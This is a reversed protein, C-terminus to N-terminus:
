STTAALKMLHLRLFNLAQKAARTQLLDPHGTYPLELTELSHHGAIAVPLMEVGHEGDAKVIPGIGIGWSADPTRQADRALASAAELGVSAPTQNLAISGGDLTHLPLVMGGSFARHNLKALWHTVLGQTGCENVALQENRKDLLRLVVHELRDDAEGFVLSGLREYITAATPEILAQCASESEAEATIRLSITAQSATIGVQPVRGRAILNPLMREIDSEGAGFCHIVRRCIVRRDPGLLREIAPAVTDRWMERMEAPVGPLAFIRAAGRDPRSQEMDIGPATGHRNPIITAGEPFMAQIRNAPPMDRNRRQRFLSQIHTLTPEDLRLAVGFTDALAQRTLDDETPGLGGTAVIIDARRTAQRFVDINAALDDGVTTHYLVRVGLDALQQSLWQSNTDLRQGSTLEDGISIVEAFM